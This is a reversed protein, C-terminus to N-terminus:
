TRGCQETVQLIGVDNLMKRDPSRLANGQKAKSPPEMKVRSRPNQFIDRKQRAFLTRWFIVPSIEHQRLSPHAAALRLHERERKKRRRGRNEGKRM